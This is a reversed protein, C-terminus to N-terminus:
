HSKTHTAPIPDPLDFKLNSAVLYIMAVFYEVTRFDRSKRKASQIIGNLAEAAGNTVRTHLYAVVGDWHSRITRSVKKM